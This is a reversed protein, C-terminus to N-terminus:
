LEKKVALERIHRATRIALAEITLSPAEGGGSSPFVSADVVFLNKWRHARGYPDVVSASPNRGMRCTGFVHTSSFFDYNGYEEFIGGAGSAHLIERAKKAMFDLRKLEMADLRSHIRALPLGSSDEQEKDLDIFSDPNSLSEGIAGLSLARGYTEILAKKHSGGWGKVVRAAYSIPGLLDAEATTVTFRCGGIVNPIADPSNYDWCIGPSPLGRQSGLTEPYLGSSTWALTEMFNKGVQGSENALGDTAHRNASILLLRPTQVAGSAVIVARGSAEHINGKGDRYRVGTVKDHAGAQIGVVPAETKIQCNQMAKAKRLFTADVSGKDTRPCGRNCNACYNCGPRGDYPRSAVALSNAIWSLGLKGCGQQVKQGAYSFPHAPLPYPHSRPRFPDSDPGAVGVIREAIVYFPELEAYTVPWDASVGFRSQMRMSQPNLRHAEGTFHLTSGGLGQVHHYKWAKRDPGPNLWGTIHNWSRLHRYQPALTQLPAFSYTPVPPSKDPFHRTEWTPKDLQYDSFPDYAPGAELVLVRLGEEALAWACSGGGAGSGIVIADFGAKSV